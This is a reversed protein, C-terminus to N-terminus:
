HMVRNMTWVMDSEEVDGRFLGSVESGPLSRTGAEMGLRRVVVSGGPTVDADTKSQVLQAIVWRGRVAVDGGPYRRALLLRDDRVLSGKIKEVEVIDNRVCGMDRDRSGPPTGGRDWPYPDM